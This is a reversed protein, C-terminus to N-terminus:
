KADDGNDTTDSADTAALAADVDDLKQQTGPAAPKDDQDAVSKTKATTTKKTSAKAATKRATTKRAKPKTAAKKAAPEKAGAKDAADDSASATAAETQAVTDAVRAGAEDATNSEVPASSSDDVSATDVDVSIDILDREQPIAVRRATDVLDAVAERLSKAPKVDGELVEGTPQRPKLMSEPMVKALPSSALVNRSADVVNTAQDIITSAPETSVVRGAAGRGRETLAEVRSEAVEALTVGSTIVNGPVAAVADRVKRVESVVTRSQLDERAAVVRDRTQAVRSVAIDTLGVAAYGSNVALKRVEDAFSREDADCMGADHGPQASTTTQDESCNSSDVTATM